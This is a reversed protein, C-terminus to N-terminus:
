TNEMEMKLEAELNQKDRGISAVAIVKGGRKFRLLCDRRAIDGEIDLADWSEAHGAYNVAVDYHQSWFFPVAAFSSRVGLMTSAAHQGQRM